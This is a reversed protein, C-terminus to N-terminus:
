KEIKEIKHLLEHVDTSSETGLIPGKQQIKYAEFLKEIMENKM